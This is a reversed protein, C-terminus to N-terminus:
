KPMDKFIAPNAPNGDRLDLHVARKHDPTGIGTWVGCAVAQSLSINGPDFAMGDMHQSRKAAKIAKNHEPCRYADVVRVPGVMQRLRFMASLLERRVYACGCHKCALESITFYTVLCKTDSVWQLAQQTKPGALGDIDLWGNPGCYAAQFREIAAKTLPGADGDAAGCPFGSAKLIQQVDKTDM